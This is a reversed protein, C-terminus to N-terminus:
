LDKRMRTHKVEGFLTEGPGLAKYGQRTYFGVANERANLVIQKVGQDRARKELAELIKRGLGSGQHAPDVAMYRVQAEEPSNLQLRGVALASGDDGLIILHFAKSDLPDRESGRPQHWPKRLIRWRLDFSAAWEAPTAPERAVLDDNRDLSM